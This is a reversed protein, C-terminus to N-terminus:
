IVSAIARNFGLGDEAIDLLIVAELAELQLGVHFDINLEAEYSQCM